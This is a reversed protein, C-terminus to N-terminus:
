VISRIFLTRHHLTAGHARLADCHANTAYGKNSNWAYAPFEQHLTTMYTDREVKAIISAAAISISECDGKFITEQPCNKVTKLAKVPLSDTFVVVSASAPLTAIIATVVRLAAQELAPVIGKDNIEEVTSSQINWAIAKEKIVPSLATRKLQTCQKSDHIKLTLLHKQEAATPFGFCVGGVHVPGALCGRGVEDIGIVYTNKSFYPIEYEFHARKKVTVM